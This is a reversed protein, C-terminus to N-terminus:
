YTILTTTRKQVKTLKKKETQNKKTRKKKRHRKGEDPLGLIDVPAKASQPVHDGSKGLLLAVDGKTVGLEGEHQLRPVSSPLHRKFGEEAARAAKVATHPSLPPPPLLERGTIQNTPHQFYIARKKRELFLNHSFCFSAVTTKAGRTDLKNCCIM